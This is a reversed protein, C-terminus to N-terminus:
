SVPDLSQDDVGPFSYKRLTRLLHERDLPKPIYDTCGIALCKQREGEMAGATLAIIPETFGEARLRQTTEYGDLIPMQMDMLVMDFPCNEATARHVAEIAESGNGVITISTVEHQLLHRLMFQLSRTDEAILLRCPLRSGPRALEPNTSAASRAVRQDASGGPMPLRIRFTTGHGVTSEVVIQGGHLEVLRRVIALGLGTGRVSRQNEAQSFEQFLDAVQDEPIGVGTDRVVIHLQEASLSPDPEVLLEVLGEDTFKVSNSLLNLLIQRVRLPDLQVLTPLSSAVEARLSIGKEAAMPEVLKRIEDILPRLECWEYRLEIRGAEIKSLDLVDNLLQLLSEGQNRIVEALERDAGAEIRRCLIDACGMVATLPTRIEHSM